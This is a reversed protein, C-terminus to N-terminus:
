RKSPPPRRPPSSLRGDRRAEAMMEEFKTDLALKGEDIKSREALMSNLREALMDLIEVVQVGPTVLSRTTPGSM